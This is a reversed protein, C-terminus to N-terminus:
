FITKSTLLYTMSISQEKQSIDNVDKTAGNNIFTVVDIVIVSNLHSLLWPNASLTVDLIYDFADFGCCVRTFNINSFINSSPSRQFLYNLNLYNVNLM